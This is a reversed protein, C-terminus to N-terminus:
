TQLYLLSITGTRTFSLDLCPLSGGTTVDPMIKAKLGGSSMVRPEESILDQFKELKKDATIAQSPTDKVSDNLSFGSYDFAHDEQIHLTIQSSQGLVQESVPSIDKCLNEGDHLQEGCM